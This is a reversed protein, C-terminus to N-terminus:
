FDGTGDEGAGPGKMKERFCPSVWAYAHLFCLMWALQTWKGHLLEYEELTEDRRQKMGDNEKTELAATLPGEPLRQFTLELADNLRLNYPPPDAHQVRQIGQCCTTTTTTTTLTTTMMVTMM